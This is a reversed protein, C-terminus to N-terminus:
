TLFPDRFVLEARSNLNVSETVAKIQEIEISIYSDNGLYPEFVADFGASLLDRLERPPILMDLDILGAGLIIGRILSVTSEHLKALSRLYDLRSPPAPSVREMVGAVIKKIKTSTLSSTAESGYRVSM